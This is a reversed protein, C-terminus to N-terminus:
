RTKMGKNEVVDRDIMMGVDRKMKGGLHKQKNNSTPITISHAFLRM